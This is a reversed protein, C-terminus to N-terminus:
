LRALGLRYVKYGYLSGSCGLMNREFSCWCIFIYRDVIIGTLMEFYFSSPAIYLNNRKCSQGAQILEEGCHSLVGCGSGLKFLFFSWSSGGRIRGDFGRTDMGGVRGREGLRGHVFVRLPSHFGDIEHNTDAPEIARRSRANCCCAFDKKRRLLPAANRTVNRKVQRLRPLLRLAPAPTSRCRPRGLCRSPLAKQGDWSGPGFSSPIDALVNRPRTIVQRGRKTWQIIAGPRPDRTAPFEELRRPMGRNRFVRPIGSRSVRAREM